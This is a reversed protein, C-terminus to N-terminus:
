NPDTISVQKFSCYFKLDGTYCSYPDVDAGQPKLNTKKHLTETPLIRKNLFENKRKIFQKVHKKTTSELSQETGEGVTSHHIDM